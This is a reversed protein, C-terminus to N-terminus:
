KLFFVGLRSTLLRAAAEGLELEDPEEVESAARPDRGGFAVALPVLGPEKPVEVAVQPRAVRDDGVPAEAGVEREHFEGCHADLEDHAVVLHALAVEPAPHAEPM